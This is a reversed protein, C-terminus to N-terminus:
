PRTETRGVEVPIRSAGEPPTEGQDQDRESARGVVYTPRRRVEDYIRALYVGLVGSFTLNISSLLVILFVVTTYGRPIHAGLVYLVATIVAYCLCVFITLGGVVVGVHLPANSFDFFSRSFLQMLQRLGYRSEGEARAGAKYPVVAQRFGVWLALGRYLPHREPMAAVAKQATRDLLRFDSAEPIIEVDAVRSIMRYAFSTTVRRWLSLDETSLKRTHVVDYGQRWADVLVPILEPPHQLDGDMTIVVDAEAHDLGAALAAQHGFNRSLLLYTVRDDRAAFSALISPTEDLSGDSVFLISWSVDLRDLVAAVRTYTLELVKAENYVPVIVCLRAPGTRPSLPFPLAAAPSVGNTADKERQMTGTSM